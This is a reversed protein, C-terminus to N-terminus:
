QAFHLNRNMLENALQLYALSGSSKVDFLMTPKGYFEAESITTSKPIVTELIDGGFNEFLARKTLSWAKTNPEFMTLLIGEVSLRKNLNDRVWTIHNYMKKLASISFQGARIPILVSDAATLAVTTLGKLYPPCDILIYDYKGLAYQNLINEFLYINRTLRSIREEIEGSNISCPIFDLTQLDTKHIVSDIYKIFSIVQFIDGKLKENEFGLSVSCAGSPDFDILLTKKEAIALGAALNVATTTKGVGGKPVAIAIKKSM